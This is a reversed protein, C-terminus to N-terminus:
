GIEHATQAEYIAFCLRMTSNQNIKNLLQTLTHLDNQATQVNETNLYEGFPNNILCASQVNYGHSSFTQALTECQKKANSLCALWENQNKNLRILATITRIKCLDQQYISM